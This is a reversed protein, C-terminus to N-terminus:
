AARGRRRGAQASSRASRPAFPLPGVPEPVPVDPTRTKVLADLASEPIRYSSGPLPQAAPLRGAKIYRCVTYKSVRLREAVEATTLFKESM